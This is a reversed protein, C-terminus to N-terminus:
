WASLESLGNRVGSLMLATYGSRVDGQLSNWTTGHHPMQEKLIETVIRVTERNYRVSKVNESTNCRSM